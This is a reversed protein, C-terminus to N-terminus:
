KGPLRERTEARVSAAGIPSREFFEPFRGPPLGVRYAAKRLPASFFFHDGCRRGSFNEKAKRGCLIGGIPDPSFFPAFAEETGALERAKSQDLRRTLLRNQSLYVLRTGDPSIIVDPGSRSGHSVDTGLDVDLRLLPKFPLDGFHGTRWLAAGLVVAIVVAAIWGLSLRRAPQFTSEAETLLRRADGIDRFRHRPDKQLCEALLRRVKVPIRDLDPPQHTKM